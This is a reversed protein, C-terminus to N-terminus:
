LLGDYCHVTSSFKYFLRGHNCSGGTYGSDQRGRNLPGKGDIRRGKLGHALASPSVTAIREGEVAVTMDRQPMHTGDILTVHEIVINEAHAATACLLMSILVAHQKV